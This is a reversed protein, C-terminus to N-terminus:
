KAVTKLENIQKQLDIIYLSLEENKEVLLRVM